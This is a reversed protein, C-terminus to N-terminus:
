QCTSEKGSLWWLLGQKRSNLKVCATKYNKCEIDIDMTEIKRKKREKGKKKEKKKKKGNTLRLKVYTM